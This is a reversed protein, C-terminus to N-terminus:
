RMTGKMLSLWVSRVTALMAIVASISIATDVINLKWHIINIIVYNVNGRVCVMTILTRMATSASMIGAITM